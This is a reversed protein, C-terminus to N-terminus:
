RATSGKVSVVKYGADEILKKLATITEPSNDKVFLSAKNEKLVVRISKQDVGPLKMLAATVAQVCSGCTMGEIAINLAKGDTPSPVAHASDSLITLAAVLISILLPM